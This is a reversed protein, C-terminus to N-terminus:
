TLGVASLLNLLLNLVLTLILSIIDITFTVKISTCTRLPIQYYCILPYPRERRNVGEPIHKYSHM